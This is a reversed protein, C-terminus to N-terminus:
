TLDHDIIEEFSECQTLDVCTIDEEIVRTAVVLQRVVHKLVEVETASLQPLALGAPVRSRKYEAWSLKYAKM